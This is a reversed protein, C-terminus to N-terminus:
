QVSNIASADINTDVSDLDKDLTDLDQSDQATVSQTTTTQESSLPVQTDDKHLKVQWMYIGGIVLIVVIVILGILAGNSKKESDM